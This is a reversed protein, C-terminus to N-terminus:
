SCDSTTKTLWLRINDAGGSKGRRDLYFVELAKYRDLEKSLSILALIQWALLSGTRRCARTNKQKKLNLVVGPLGCSFELTCPVQGRWGTIPVRSGSM